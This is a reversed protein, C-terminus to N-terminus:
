NGVDNDDDVIGHMCNISNNSFNEEIFFVTLIMVEM